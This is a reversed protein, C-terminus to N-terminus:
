WPFWAAPDLADAETRTTGNPPRLGHTTPCSRLRRSRKRCSKTPRTDRWQDQAWEDSEFGDINGAPPQEDGEGASAGGTADAPADETRHLRARAREEGKALAARAKAASGRSASGAKSAASNAKARLQEVRQEGEATFLPDGDRFSPSAVLLIVAVAVLVAIIMGLILIWVYGM